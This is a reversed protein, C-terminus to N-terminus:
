GIFVMFIIRLCINAYVGAMLDDLVIGLGGKVKQDILRVPFPKLIDFFRFLVFGLIISLWSLPFLFVALLLGAVEDIVIVQPDDMGLLKRSVESSWLALPIIVIIAIGQYLFGLYSFVVALPVAGLTGFTGPAKPALGIGFWSSLILAAKGRFDASNFSEQLTLNDARSSAM